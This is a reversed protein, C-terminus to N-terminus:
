PHLIDNTDHFKDSNWIEEPVTGDEGVEDETPEYVQAVNKIVENKDVDENVTVSFSVKQEEGAAISPIIFRVYSQEDITFLEGGSGEVYTTNEPIADRVLVNTKEKDSTNK